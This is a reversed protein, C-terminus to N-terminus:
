LKEGIILLMVDYQEAKITEIASLSEVLHSQVKANEVAQQRLQRRVNLIFITILAILPIISLTVLTLPLSYSVMIAIYIVIFIADLIATLGSGTLFILTKLKMLEPHLKEWMVSQSIASHYHQLKDIVQM